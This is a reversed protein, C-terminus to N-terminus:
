VVAWVESFAGKGDVTWLTANGHDNVQLVEGQYDEPVESLDEVRLGDFFGDDYFLDECIWFGYDSGDGPHSGFYCYSPAYENLADFLEECVYHALDAVSMKDGDKDTVQADHDFHCGYTDNVWHKSLADLEFAFDSARKPDLVDLADHFAHILDEERMSGSSVSGLEAVKEQKTM